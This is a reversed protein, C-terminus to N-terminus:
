EKAEKGAGEEAGEEAEAEAEDEEEIGGEKGLRAVEADIADLEAQAAPDILASSFLLAEILQTVICVHLHPTRPSPRSSPFSGYFPSPSLSPPSPLTRLHPSEGQQVPGEKRLPARSSAALVWLPDSYGPTIRDSCRTRGM